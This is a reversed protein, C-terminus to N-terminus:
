RPPAIGARARRLASRTRLVAEATYAAIAVLCVYAGVNLLDRFAVLAMIANPLYALLLCVHANVRHPVGSYFNFAWVLAVLLTVSWASASATRTDADLITISVLVSADLALLALGYAVWTETKSLPGAIFQRVQSMFIPVALFAVLAMLLPPEFFGEGWLVAWPTVGWAFPLFLVAIGFLGLIPSVVRM